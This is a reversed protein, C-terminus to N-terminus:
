LVQLRKLLPSRQSKKMPPLGIVTESGPELKTLGADIVFVMRGKQEEKLKEFEKDDAKLAIKRIGNKLWDSWLFYQSQWLDNSAQPYESSGKSALYKDYRNSLKHYEMMLMSVAHGVQACTKGVGMEEILSSRVILYMAIPDEQNM